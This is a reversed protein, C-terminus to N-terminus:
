GFDLEIQDIKEQRIISKSEKLMQLIYFPTLHTNVAKQNLKYLMCITENQDWFPAINDTKMVFYPPKM